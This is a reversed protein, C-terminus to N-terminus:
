GGIQSTLLALSELFVIMALLVPIATLLISVNKLIEAVEKNLTEVDEMKRRLIQAATEKLSSMEIGIKIDASEFVTVIKNLKLLEVLATANMTRHKGKKLDFQKTIAPIVDASGYGIDMLTVVSSLALLSRLKSFINKILPMKQPIFIFFYIFFILIIGCILLYNDLIFLSTTSLKKTSVENIIKFKSVVSSFVLAMITYIVLPTRLGKKIAKLYTTTKEKVPSYKEFVTGASVSKEESFKLLRLIDDDLYQKYADHRKLGQKLKKSLKRIDRALKKNEKELEGAYQHLLIFSTTGNQAALVEARIIINAIEEKNNGFLAM